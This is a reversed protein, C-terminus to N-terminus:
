PTVFGYKEYVAESDAGTLVDFFDAAADEQQEGADPNQVLAAPYVIKGTLDQPVHQLIEVRDEHGTVDSLYTTGVECSGEAVAALVQSVNGQESVTVGGLADSVEASTYDAADKSGDLTGMAILAQRTYRGAPVSGGALAISKASDLNELGTVKTGSGTWTIVVLENELVDRRTGEALLGDTELQDMQKKAASFFIDCPAGEEIQTMLTGSSDSNLLIKTGPHSQEYADAIETVADNLSAAIFVNVETKGEPASDTQDSAAADTQAATESAATNSTSGSLPEPAKGGAGCATLALVFVLVAAERFSRALRNRVKTISRTM